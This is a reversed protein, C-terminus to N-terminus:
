IYQSYSILIKHFFNFFNDNKSTGSKLDSREIFSDFIADSITTKDLLGFEFLSKFTM